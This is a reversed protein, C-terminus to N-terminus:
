IHTTTIHKKFFVKKYHIIDNERTISYIPAIMIVNLPWNGLISLSIKCTLRRVALQDSHNKLCLRSQKHLQCWNRIEKEKNLAKICNFIMTKTGTMVYM